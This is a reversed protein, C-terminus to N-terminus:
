VKQKLLLEDQFLQSLINATYIFKAENGDCLADLCARNLSNTVLRTYVYKQNRQIFEHAIQYIEQKDDESYFIFERLYILLDHHMYFALQHVKRLEPLYQWLNNVAEMRSKFNEVSKSTTISTQNGYVLWIYVRSDILGIRDTKSYLKATFLKDEYLGDEFYINKEQLASIKYLKNTSLTDDFLPLRNQFTNITKTKYLRRFWEGELGSEFQKRVTVGSVVDLNHELAYSMLNSFTDRYILDDSDLFFVYSGEAQSIGFNRTLGLGENEKWFYRFRKDHFSEVIDKVTEASGDDVIMVDLNKYRSKQISELTAPLTKRSNYCPVLISIKPTTQLAIDKAQLGVRQRVESIAGDLLKSLFTM